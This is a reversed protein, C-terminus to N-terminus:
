PAEDAPEDGLPPFNRKQREEARDLKRSGGKAQERKRYEVIHAHAGSSPRQWGHSYGIKCKYDHRGQQHARRQWQQYAMDHAARAIDPARDAEEIVDIREASTSGAQDTRDQQKRKEPHLARDVYGDREVARNCDPGEDRMPAVALM